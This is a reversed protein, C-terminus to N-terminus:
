SFLRQVTGLVLSGGQVAVAALIATVGGAWGILHSIREAHEPQRALQISVVVTAAIVWPEVIWLFAWHDWNGSFTCYTFVIGNAVLLGAPISLWIVRTMAMLILLAGGILLLEMPWGIDFVAWNRFVSGVTVAFLNGLAIITGAILLGKGTQRGVSRRAARAATADSKKQAAQAAKEARAKERRAKRPLKPQSERLQQELTIDTKADAAVADIQDERRPGSLVQVSESPAEPTTFSRPHSVREPLEIESETLAASIAAKMSAADAFRDDPDKAMAKLIVRELAEPIAPDIDRPLPLPDNVHKMLIALPTEADYPIRQTLMEYLIIGMAYIDTRADCCGTLGQEPAMYEPTGMLAGTATTQTGGVMHAIGFDGLVAQGRKTLLVNSPKVDRHVMGESHAYALGDLVDLLIRGVEGLPMTEGHVRYDDLRAKLTDGELYEMVMYYADDQVDFDFVRVVHPHRLSAVARAERQFRALFEADEVLDSRLIKLAVYRDLQPHYARYVWAMGGHGLAELVRYKGLTMGEFSTRMM